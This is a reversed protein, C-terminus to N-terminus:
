QGRLPNIISAGESCAGIFNFNPSFGKCNVPVGKFSGRTTASVKLPMGGQCTTVQRAGSDSSSYRLNPSYQVTGSNSELKLM